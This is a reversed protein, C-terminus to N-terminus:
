IDLVRNSNGGANWCSENRNALVELIALEITEQVYDIKEKVFITRRLNQSGAVANILWVHCNWQCLVHDARDRIIGLGSVTM